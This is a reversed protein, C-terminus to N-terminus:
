PAQAEVPQEAFRRAREALPSTAFRRMFARARERAEASRGVGALAEIRMLSAEAEFEGGALESGHRDLLELALSQRSSRLAGRIERLRALQQGITVEASPASRVPAATAPTSPVSKARTHPAPDPAFPTRQREPASPATPETGGRSTEPRAPRPSPSRPASAAEPATRPRESARPPPTPEPRSTQRPSATPLAGREGARHEPSISVRDRPSTAADYAGGVAVLLAAAVALTAWARRRRPPAVRRSGDNAPTAVVRLAASPPAGIGSQARGDAVRLLRERLAEPAREGALAAFLAREHAEMDDPKM